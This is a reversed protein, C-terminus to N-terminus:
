TGDELYTYIRKADAILTEPDRNLDQRFNRLEVALEVAKERREEDASKKAM